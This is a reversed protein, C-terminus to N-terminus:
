RKIFFTCYNNFCELFDLGLIMLEEDGNTDNVGLIM